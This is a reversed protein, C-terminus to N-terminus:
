NVGGANPDYAKIHTSDSSSLVCFSSYWLIEKYTGGTIDVRLDLTDNVCLGANTQPIDVVLGARSILPLSFLLLIFLRRM